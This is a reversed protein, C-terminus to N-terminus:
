SVADLLEAHAEVVLAVLRAPDAVAGADSHLGLHCTGDLSLLSVNLAAATLPGIPHDALVRAGALWLPVPAGRVNSAAFDVARAQDRVYRAVLATPLLNAVAALPEAAALVPDHRARGLVEHVARFRARPDVEAVPVLLRTPVFANGAPVGRRRTSVPMAMRLEDVPHGAERHLAGIAGGVVTVFADNVTGDLARSATRLEELPLDVVDLRRRLTRSTWLPSRAHDVTLLQDVASRAAVTTARAAQGLQAPQRV